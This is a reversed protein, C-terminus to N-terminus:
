RFCTIAAAAPAAISSEAQGSKILSSKAETSNSAIEHMHPTLHRVAYSKAKSQASGLKELGLRRCRVNSPRYLANWSVFEYPVARPHQIRQCKVAAKLIILRFQDTPQRGLSSKPCRSEALGFISVDPKEM